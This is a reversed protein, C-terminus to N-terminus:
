QSRVNASRRNRRRAPKHEADAADSETPLEVLTDTTADDADEVPPTAPEVYSVTEKIYLPMGGRTHTAYPGTFIYYGEGYYFLFAEISPVEYEAGDSWRRIRMGSM